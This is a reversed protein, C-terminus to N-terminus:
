GILSLCVQSNVKLLLVSHYLMLRTSEIGSSRKNELKIKILNHLNSGHSFLYISFRKKRNQNCGPQKVKLKSPRPFMIKSIFGFVLMQREM